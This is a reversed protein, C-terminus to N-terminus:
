IIFKVLHNGNILLFNFLTQMEKFQLEVKSKVKPESLCEVPAELADM